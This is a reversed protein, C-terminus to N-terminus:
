GLPVITSSGGVTVQVATAQSPLLMANHREAQWPGAGIRYRLLAGERAVVYGQGQPLAIKVPLPASTDVPGVYRYRVVGAPSRLSYWVFAPDGILQADSVIVESGNPTTGCAAWMGSQTGGAGLPDRFPGSRSHDRPQGPGCKNPDPKAGQDPGDLNYVGWELRGNQHDAYPGLGVLYPNSNVSANALELPQSLPYPQRAVAVAGQDARAPVRVVAVGGTFRLPTWDRTIQGDPHYTRGLSYGTPADPDFVVLVSRDAGAFMGGTGGPFPGLEPPDPPQDLPEWVAGVVRPRGVIDTLYGVVVGPRHPAGNVM